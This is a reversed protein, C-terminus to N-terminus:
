AAAGSLTQMLLEVEGALRAGVQPISELGKRGMVRQVLGLDQEMDEIAWAAKRYAWITHQPRRDLEMLHIKQSLAEMVRKNL